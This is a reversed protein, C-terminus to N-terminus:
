HIVMVIKIPLHMHSHSTIQMVRRCTSAQPGGGEWPGVWGGVCVCAYTDGSFCPMLPVRTYQSVTMLLHNMLVAIM